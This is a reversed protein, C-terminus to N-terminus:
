KKWIAKQYQDFSKVEKYQWSAEDFVIYKNPDFGAISESKEIVGQVIDDIKREIDEDSIFIEYTYRYRDRGPHNAIRISGLRVDKFKIYFSHSQNKHWKIAGYDRLREFLVDSLFLEKRRIGSFDM